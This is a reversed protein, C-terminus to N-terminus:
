HVAEGCDLVRKVRRSGEPKGEPEGRKEPHM